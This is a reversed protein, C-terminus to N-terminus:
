CAAGHLSTKPRLAAHRADIKEMFGLSYEVDGCVCPPPYKSRAWGGGSEPRPTNIRRNYGREIDLTGYQRVLTVETTHADNYTRSCTLRQVTFDARGQRRIAGYLTEDDLDFSRFAESLHARWRREVCGTTMGIYVQGTVVNTIAYTSYGICSM